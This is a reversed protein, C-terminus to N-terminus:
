HFQHRLWDSHETAMRTRAWNALDAFLQTAPAPPSQLGKWALRVRAVRSSGDLLLFLCDDGDGRAILRVDIGHLVHGPAVEKGLQRRFIGRYSESMGETPKWPDLWDM